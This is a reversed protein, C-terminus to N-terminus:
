GDCFVLDFKHDAPLLCETKFLNLEPHEKPLDTVGLEAAEITIDTFVINTQLRNKLLVPHWGFTQPLTVGFVIASPNINIASATYGGPAMCLDIIQPEKSSIQLARTLEHMGAAISQM